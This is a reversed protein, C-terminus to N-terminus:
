CSSQLVNMPHTVDRTVPLFNNGYFYRLTPISFAIEQTINTGTASLHELSTLKTIGTFDDDCMTINLGKLTLPLDNVLINCISANLNVLNTMTSIARRVRHCGSTNLSSIQLNQIDQANIAHNFSIDLCTLPLQSLISNHISVGGSLKLSTLNSLLSPNQITQYSEINNHIELHVLATFTTIYSPITPLRLIELTTLKELGIPINDQKYTKFSRLMTLKSVDTVLSGANLTLDVVHLRELHHNCVHQRGSIHIPTRLALEHLQKNVFMFKTADM